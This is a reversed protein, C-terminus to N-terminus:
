LGQFRVVIPRYKPVVIFGLGLGLNSGDAMLYPRSWGTLRSYVRLVRCILQDELFYLYIYRSLQMVTMGLIPLLLALPFAAVGIAIWEM